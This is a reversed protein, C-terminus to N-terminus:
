LLDLPSRERESSSVSAGVIFRRVHTTREKLICQASAIKDTSISALCSGKTDRYFSAAGSPPPEGGAGALRIFLKSPERPEPGRSMEIHGCFGEWSYDSETPTAWGIERRNIYKM